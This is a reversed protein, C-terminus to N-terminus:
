ELNVMGVVLAMDLIEDKPIDFAVYSPNDSVAKICDNLESQFLRKVLIGQERTAIAYVKGWQIFRSKHLVRCGIINGSNYKPYMSSGKISILWDVDKFDPIVYKGIVKEHNIMDAFSGYSTASCVDYLYIFNKDDNTIFSKTRETNKINKENEYNKLMEGKGTILWDLNLEPYAISIKNIVDSGISGKNNSLYSRAIGVNEEFANQGIKLFKLFSLIRIKTTEM